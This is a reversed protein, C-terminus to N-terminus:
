LNYSPSPNTHLYMNKSFCSLNFIAFTLNMERSKCYSLVYKIKCTKVYKTIFIYKLIIQLIEAKKVYKTFNSLKPPKTTNLIICKYKSLLIIHSILILKINIVQNYNIKNTETRYGYM